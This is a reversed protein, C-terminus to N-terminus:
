RFYYFPTYISIQFYQSQIEKGSEDLLIMQFGASNRCGNCYGIIELEDKITDYSNISFAQINEKTFGDNNRINLYKSNSDL